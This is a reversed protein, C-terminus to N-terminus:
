VHAVCFRDEDTVRSPQWKEVCGNHVVVALAKFLSHVTFSSNPTTAIYISNVGPKESMGVNVWKHVEIGM